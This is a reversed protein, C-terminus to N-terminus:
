HNQRPQTPYYCRSCVRQKAGTFGRRVQLTIVDVVYGNNQWNNGTTMKEKLREDEFCVRMQAESIDRIVGRNGAKLKEFNTQKWYFLQKPYFNDILKPKIKNNYNEDIIKYQRYDNNITVSEVTLQTVNGKQNSIKAVNMADQYDENKVPPETENQPDLLYKWICGITNLTTIIPHVSEYLVLAVAIIEIVISGKRVESMLIKTDVGEQAYRGYINSISSLGRTFTIIEIPKKHEIKLTIKKEM